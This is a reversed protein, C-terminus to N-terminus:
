RKAGKTGRPVVCRVPADDVEIEHNIRAATQIALRAQAQQQPTLKRGPPIAFFAHLADHWHKVDKARYENGSLCRQYAVNANTSARQSAERAVFGVAGLGFTMVIDLALSVALLRILRRNRRGSYYLDREFGTASEEFHANRSFLDRSEESM